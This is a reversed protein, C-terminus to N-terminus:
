PSIPPSEVLGQESCHSSWIKLGTFFTRGAVSMLFGVRSMWVVWHSAEEKALLLLISMQGLRWMSASMLIHRSIISVRVIM